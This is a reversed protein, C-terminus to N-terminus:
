NSCRIRARTDDGSNEVTNQAGPKQQQRRQKPMCAVAHHTWRLTKRWNRCQNTQTRCQIAVLVFFSIHTNQHHIKKAKRKSSHLFGRLTKVLDVVLQRGVRAALAFRQHNARRAGDRHQTAVRLAVHLHNQAEVLARGLHQQAKVDVHAAKAVVSLRHPRQLARAAGDGLAVIQDIRRAAREGVLRTEGLVRAAAVRRRHGIQVRRSQTRNLPCRTTQLTQCSRQKTPARGGLRNTCSQRFQQREVRDHSARPRIPWHRLFLVAVVRQVHRSAGTQLVRLSAVFGRHSWQQIKQAM